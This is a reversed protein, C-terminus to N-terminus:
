KISLRRIWLVLVFGFEAVLMLVLAICGMGIRSLAHATRRPTSSDVSGGGHPGRARHSIGVNRGDDGGVRLVIWLTRITGLVFGARFVVAFISRGRLTRFGSRSSATSKGSAGLPAYCLTVDGLM